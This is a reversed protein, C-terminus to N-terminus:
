GSGPAPSLKRRLRDLDAHAQEVTLATLHRRDRIQHDMVQCWLGLNRDNTVFVTYTPGPPPDAFAAAVAEVDGLDAGGEAQRVDHVWDWGALEPRRAVLDVIFRATAPGSAAADLVVTIRRAPEDIRHEITM